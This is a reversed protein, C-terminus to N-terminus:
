KLFRQIDSLGSFVKDKIEKLKLVKTESLKSGFLLCSDLHAHSLEIMPVREPNALQKCKPFIMSETSIFVSRLTKNNKNTILKQEDNDHVIDGASPQSHLVEDYFESNFEKM